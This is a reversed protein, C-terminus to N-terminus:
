GGTVEAVYLLVNDNVPSTPVWRYLGPYETAFVIPNNDEDLVVSEGCKKVTIWCANNCDAGVGYQLEYSEGSLLNCAAAVGHSGPAITVAITENAM